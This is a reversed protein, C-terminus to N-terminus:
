QVVCAEELNFSSKYLTMDKLNLYKSFIEPPYLSIDWLNLDKLFSYFGQGFAIKHMKVDSLVVKLYDFEIEKKNARGMAIYPLLVFYDVVQEYQNYINKFWDISHKDSIIIHLNIVIGLNKCAEVASKWDLHEHCSIAVGGCCEKTIALIEETLNSGNTTYNTVINLESITKIFECFDPHLTPEGGGIAIQFPKENENMSGFFTKAKNIIDAYHIGSPISNQYCYSCKGNCKNTISVDYFEPYNLEQIPETNDFKQRLTKGDLFIARYNQDHFERVKMSIM